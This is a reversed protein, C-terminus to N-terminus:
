TNDYNGEWSEEKDIEASKATLQFDEHFTFPSPGYGNM